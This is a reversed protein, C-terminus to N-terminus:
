LIFEVRFDYGKIIRDAKETELPSLWKEMLHTKSLDSHVRGLM